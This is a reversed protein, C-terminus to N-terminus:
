NEFGVVCCIEPTRARCRFSRNAFVRGKSKMSGFVLDSYRSSISLLVFGLRLRENVMLSINRKAIWVPLEIVSKQGSEWTKIEFRAEKKIRNWRWCSM